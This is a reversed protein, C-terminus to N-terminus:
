GPGVGYRGAYEKVKAVLRPDNCLGLYNNSCLNLYKKGDIHVWAGQPSELTRITGYLGAQKMADLEESLFKM